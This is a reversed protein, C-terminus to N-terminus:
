CHTNRISIHLFRRLETQQALIQGLLSLPEYPKFYPQWYWSLSVEVVDFGILKGSAAIHQLLLLTLKPDVGLSQIASVGPTSGVAFCRMVCVSLDTTQNELISRDSGSHSLSMQSLGPWCDISPTKAVYNYSSSTIITNQDGPHPPCDQGKRRMILWKVFVQELTPVPKTTLCDFPYGPNIVALQEDKELVPNFGWLPPRLLEPSRRRRPCHTPDRTACASSRKHSKRPTRWHITLGTLIEVDCVTVNTGLAM